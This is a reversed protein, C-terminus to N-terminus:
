ETADDPVESVFIDIRNAKDTMNTVHIEQLDGDFPLAGIEESGQRAFIMGFDLTGQGLLEIEEPDANFKVVCNGMSQAAFVSIRDRPIALRWTWQQNPSLDKRTFRVSEDQVPIQSQFAVSGRPSILEVTLGVRVADGEISAFDM